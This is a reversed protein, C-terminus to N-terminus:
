IDHAREVLWPRIWGVGHLPHEFGALNRPLVYTGGDMQFRGQAIRNSYPLLPFNALDTPLYRSQERTSRFLPQTISKMGFPQRREFSAIAGGLEPWIEAFFGGCRLAVRQTPADFGNFM